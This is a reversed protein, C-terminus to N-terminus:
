YGVDGIGAAMTVNSWMPSIFLSWVPQNFIFQVDNFYIFYFSWITQSM